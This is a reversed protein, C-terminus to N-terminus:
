LSIPVSVGTNIVAQHEILNVSQWENFNKMNLNNPQIGLEKFIYIWVYESMFGAKHITVLADLSADSNVTKSERLEQWILATKTRAFVERKYLDPKGNKDLEIDWAKLSLGYALWGTSTNKDKMVSTDIIIQNKNGENQPGACAVLTIVFISFIFNRM